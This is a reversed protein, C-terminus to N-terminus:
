VQQTVPVRNVGGIVGLQLTIDNLECSPGTGNNDYIRFKVSQCTQRALAFRVQYLATYPTTNTNLGYIGTGYPTSSGYTGNGAQTPDWTVTQAPVNLYDYCVEITLIHPSKWNGLVEAYWVTAFGQALDAPKLWATEVAMVVNAGDDQYTTSDEFLVQGNSRLRATTGNWSAYAVADYNSYTSWRHVLYDYVVATGDASVWRFQQQGPVSATGTLTLSQVLPQTLIGWSSNVTISRNLQALGTSSQYYIGESTSLISPFALCGTTSSILSLTQPFANAPQGAANPGDGPLFYIRGAKFIIAKDDLSTLGTPLGGATEIPVYQGLAFEAPRPPGLGGANLPKSYWLQYPNDQPIGFVRTKTAHIYAFAPAPENEIEGSFDGPAYLREGGLVSDTATDSYTFSSTGDTRNPVIAIRYDPSSSNAASRYIAVKVSSKRTLPTYPITLVIPASPGVIANNVITVDTVASVAYSPASYTVNGLADTWQYIVYYQYLAQSTTTASGVAATIGDPFEWFGNEVLNFGDYNYTLGCNILATNSFTTVQVKSTSPFTLMASFIYRNTYLAGTADAHLQSRYLQGAFLGTPLVTLHGPMGIATAFSAQYRTVITPAPALVTSSMLYYTSQQSTSGSITTSPSAAVWYVGDTRAATQTALILGYQYTPNVAVSLTGSTVQATATYLAPLLGPATLDGAARLTNGNFVAVSFNGPTYSGLSAPVTTVTSAGGAVNFTLLQPNGAVRTCASVVYYSGSVMDALLDAAICCRTLASVSAAQSYSNQLALNSDYLSLVIASGSPYALAVRSNVYQAAFNAGQIATALTFTNSIGAALNGMPLQYGLLQDTGRSQVFIYAYTPTIVVQPARAFTNVLVNQAYYTGSVSDRASYYVANGSDSWAYIEVAGNTASDVNTADTIGTTINTVSVNTETMAGRMQWSAATPSYGYLAMGDYLLLENNFSGLAKGTQIVTGSQPVTRPLATQGYRKEVRLVGNFAVNEAALLKDPGVYKPDTKLDVGGALSVPKTLPQLAM